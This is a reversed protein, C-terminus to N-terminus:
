LTLSKINAKQSGSEQSVVSGDKTVTIVAQHDNGDSDKVTLPVLTVPEGIEVLNEYAPM